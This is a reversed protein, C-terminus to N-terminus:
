WINNSYFRDFYADIVDFPAPGMRLLTEHFKIDSYASGLNAKAKEKLKEIQLYGLYYKLYNGPSAIILQTIEHITTKSTIGYPEWLDLLDSENWGLYHLGIDSSAYLSLTIARNNSLFSAVDEPLGAYNYSLLEVYTAWGEVFSPNVALSCIPPLGYSYSMTTQYLHGPFGEHALTTFYYIGEDDKASNIYITNKAYDDLPATIYYAPALYDALAKNTFAIKYDSIKPKPFDTLMAEQIHDVMDTEKNFSINVNECESLLKSNKAYLLACTELSKNRSSNIEQFLDPVSITSGLLSKVLHEYYERGDQFQCLGLKNVGKKRLKQLGKLLSKYSPILHKDIATANEKKYSDKQSKSLEELNDIRQNFAPVLLKDKASSIFEEISALVDDLQEDSMFLGLESKRNEFELVQGLYTDFCCIMQLYDCVDTECVFPMECLLLPLEIQVGGHGSLYEQFFRFSDNELSCSLNFCLTDYTLQERLSLEDKDFGQLINYFSQTEEHDDDTPLSGLSPIYSEIGFEKPNRLTYHLSLCDSALETHFLEDCFSEFRASEKTATNTEYKTTSCGILSLTLSLILLLCVRKRFFTIM